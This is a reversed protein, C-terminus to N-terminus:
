HMAGKDQQPRFQAMFRQRAQETLNAAVSEMGEEFSALKPDMGHALTYLMRAVTMVKPSTAQVVAPATPDNTTAAMCALAAAATVLGDVTLGEGDFAITKMDPPAGAAQAEVAVTAEEVGYREAVKDAEAIVRESEAGMAHLQNDTLGNEASYIAVVAALVEKTYEAAQVADAMGPEGALKTATLFRDILMGGVLVKTVDLTELVADPYENPNGDM